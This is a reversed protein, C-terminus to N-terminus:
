GGLTSRAVKYSIQEDIISNQELLSQYKYEEYKKEKLNELAEKEKSVERLKRREKEIENELTKLIENQENYKEYLTELYLNFQKLNMASIGMMANMENKEITENIKILIENLKNKQLEYKSILLALKEKEMKQKQEKINLVTELSYRFKKM